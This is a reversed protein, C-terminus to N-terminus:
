FKGALILRGALLKRVADNKSFDEGNRLRILRTVTYEEIMDHEQCVQM